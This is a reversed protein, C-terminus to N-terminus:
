IIKFALNKQEIWDIQSPIEFHPIARLFGAYKTNSSLNIYLTNNKSSVRSSLQIYKQSAKKPNYQFKEPLNLQLEHYLNYALMNLTADLEIRAPNNNKPSHLEFFDVHANINHEVSWRQDYVVVSERDSLDERTIILFKYPKGKDYLIIQKVRGLVQLDIFKHAAIFKKYKSFRRGTHYEKRRDPSIERAKEVMRKGKRRRTLFDVEFDNKLEQMKNYTLFKNDMVMMQPLRVGNKQWLGFLDNVIQPKDTKPVDGKLFVLFKSEQDQVLCRLLSPVSYGDKPHYNRDQKNKGTYPSTSYDINLNDLSVLQKSILYKIENVQLKQLKDIKIRNIFKQLHAASPLKELGCFYNFIERNKLVEVGDLTNIGLLKMGLLVLINKFNSIRGESDTLDKTIGTLEREQIYKMFLFLGGMDGAPLRDDQQINLGQKLAIYKSLNGRAKERVERSRRGIPKYGMDKLYRSVTMDNTHVNHLTELAGTIEAISLKMERLDKLTNKYDELIRRHKPGTKSRIAMVADFSDTNNYVRRINNIQDRTLGTKKSIESYSVGKKLARLAEYNKIKRPAEKFDEM